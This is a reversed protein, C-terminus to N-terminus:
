APGWSAAVLIPQNVATATATVSLGNSGAASALSAGSYTIGDGDQGDFDETLGAWTFTSATASMSFGIAAGGQPINVTAALPTATSTYTAHATSLAGYLAYVGIGTRAQNGSWTVVIDGTTGTPVFASWIESTGGANQQRVVLSAAVGQITLSSGTRTGDRGSFCVVIQRNPAATGLSQASFTFASQVAVQTDSDTFTAIVAGGGFLAANLSGPVIM